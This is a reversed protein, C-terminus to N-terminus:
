PIIAKIAKDAERLVENNDHHVQRAQAVTVLGNAAIICQRYDTVDGDGDENDDDGGGGGADDGDDEERTALTALFQCGVLQIRTHKPHNEMAAVVAQIGGADVFSWAIYSLEQPNFNGIKAQTEIAIADLLLPADHNMTAFSWAMNALEHENFETIRAPAAGAIAGLLAPAAHHVTAFAWATNALNQLSFNTIRAPAANSMADFLAPAEHKLTAFAL